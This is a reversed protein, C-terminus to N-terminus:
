GGLDATRANPALCEGCSGGCFHQQPLVWLPLLCPPQLPHFSCSTSNVLYCYLSLFPSSFLTPNAVVEPAHSSLTHCQLHCQLPNSLLLLHVNQFLPNFHAACRPPSHPLSPLPPLTPYCRTICRYLPRIPLLWLSPPQSPCRTFLTRTVISKIVGGSYSHAIIVILCFHSDHGSLFFRSQESSQPLHWIIFTSNM